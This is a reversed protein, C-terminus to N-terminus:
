SIAEVPLQRPPLVRVAPLTVSVRTGQGLQSDLRLVGGHKEVLAKALPLGLGTGEHRRTEVEGVQYFPELVLALHEPPIGPGTDGVVLVMGGGETLGLSVTIRGGEPTFKVANSLLNLVVQHMAREDAMMWAEGDVCVTDMALGKERVRPMMMREAARIITALNCPREHLLYGGSEIKAVDLIDNILDLLHLASLNIDRAYDKQRDALAGHVGNMLMDSFGIIANLPTRLEHSMNALFLTKARNAEESSRAAEALAAERQSLTGILGNLDVIQRHVKLVLTLIVLTIGVMAGLHYPLVQWWSRLFGEYSASVTVLLPSGPVAAWAFFRQGEGGELRDPAEESPGRVRISGSPAKALGDRFFAQQGRSAGVFREYDPLHLLVRGDTRLVALEGEAEPLFPSFATGLVVPDVVATVVGKFVGQRDTFRRSMSIFWRGSTRGRVPEGIYLGSQPDALLARVYDRDSLDMNAPIAAESDHLLRGAEDIVIIGRVMPLVARQRVLLAHIGADGWRQAEPRLALGDTLGSLLLDIRSVTSVVRERAGDRLALVQAEGREVGDRYLFVLNAGLALNLMVLVVAALLGLAAHPKAKAM